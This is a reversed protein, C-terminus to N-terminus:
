AVLHPAQARLDAALDRAAEAGHAPACHRTGEVMSTGDESLLRGRLHLAGQSLEALAAIPTRCSGDLANLFAREATVCAATETCHLAALADQLPKNDARLQVALAGQGAAPLMVAHPLALCHPPTLQMRALGAAALIIADLGDQQAKELRTHINGRLPVISLDPRTALMQAQRRLSSTGVCGGQPIDHVGSLPAHAILVDDAPARPLIAGLALGEPMQTPLDKLSHVAMDLSGDHLGAELEETFLGKGGIEALKMDLRKDGKTIIEQLAVAEPPWGHASCLAAAVHRSQALALPSARTGLRLPTIPASPTTPADQPNANALHPEDKSM